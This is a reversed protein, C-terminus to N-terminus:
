LKMRPRGEFYKCSWTSRPFADGKKRMIEAFKRCKGDFGKPMKMFFICQQCVTGTPGTGAFHAMGSYSGDPLPM